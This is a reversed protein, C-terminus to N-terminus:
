LHWCTRLNDRPAHACRTSAPPPTSLATVSMSGLHWCTRLNDRPAPERKRGVRPPSDSQEGGTVCVASEGITPHVESASQTPAADASADIVNLLAKGTESDATDEDVANVM